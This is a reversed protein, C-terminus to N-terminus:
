GKGNVIKSNCKFKNIPHDPLNPNLGLWKGCVKEMFPIVRGDFDNKLNPYKYERRGDCTKQTQYAHCFDSYLGMKYAFRRLTEKFNINRLVRNGSDYELTRSPEQIRNECMKNWAAWLNKITPIDCSERCTLFLEKIENDSCPIRAAMERAASMITSDSVKRGALEYAESLCILFAAERPTGNVM